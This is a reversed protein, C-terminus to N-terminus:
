EESESEDFATKITKLSTREKDRLVTSNQADITLESLAIAWRSGTAWSCYVILFPLLRLWVLGMQELSVWLAVFYVVTTLISIWSTIEPAMLAPGSHTLIRPKMGRMFIGGKSTIDKFLEVHEKYESMKWYNKLATVFLNSWIIHLFALLILPCWSYRVPIAVGIFSFSSINGIIVSIVVISSVLTCWLFSNIYSAEAIAKAKWYNPDKIM